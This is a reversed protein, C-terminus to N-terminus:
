SWIRASIGAMPRSIVPLLKRCVMFYRLAELNESAGSAIASAIRLKSSM